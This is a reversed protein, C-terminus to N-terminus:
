SNDKGLNSIDEMAAEFAKKNKVNFYKGDTEDAIKKLLAEDFVDCECM